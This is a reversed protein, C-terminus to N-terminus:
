KYTPLYFIDKTLLHKDVSALSSAKLHFLPHLKSDVKSSSQSALQSLIIIPNETAALITQTDPISLPTSFSQKLTQKAVVYCITMLEGHRVSMLFQSIWLLRSQYLSRLDM